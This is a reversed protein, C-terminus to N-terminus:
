LGVKQSLAREVVWRHSEIRINHLLFSLNPKLKGKSFLRKVIYIMFKKLSGESGVSNVATEYYSEYYKDWLLSVTNSINESYMPEELLINLHKLHNLFNESNNIVIGDKTKAIGLVKFSRLNKHDFSLSVALGKNWFPDESEGDFYFNGLSYFIPKGKYTEWGQPVHPHSGIIADAGLDILERYRERWEPLPLDHDELGAHVQIILVDLKERSEKVIHKVSPHNIWAFGGRSHQHLTSAGFQAEDYSL